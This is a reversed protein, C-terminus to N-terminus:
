AVNRGAVFARMSLNYRLLVIQNELFDLQTFSINLKLERDRM